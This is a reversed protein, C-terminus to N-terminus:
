GSWIATTREWGPGLHRPSPTTLATTRMCLSTPSRSGRGFLRRRLLLRRRGRRPRFRWTRGSTCRCRRTSSRSSRGAARWRTL